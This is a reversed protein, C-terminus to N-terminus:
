VLFLSVLFSPAIQMTTNDWGHPSIAEVLSCALAILTVKGVMQYSFEINPLFLISIVIALLSVLFVGLSGEISRMTKIKSFSPVRYKHRGFRTGIPEGAADGLGGVLYGVIAVGSFLVNSTIGGILTAFYPVVIYYTQYPSDQGRVM